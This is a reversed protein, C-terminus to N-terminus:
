TEGVWFPSEWLAEITKRNTKEGDYCPMLLYRGNDLGFSFRWRYALCM